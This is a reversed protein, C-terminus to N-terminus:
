IVERYELHWDKILGDKMACNKCEALDNLAKITFDKCNLWEGTFVEENDRIEVLRFQKM